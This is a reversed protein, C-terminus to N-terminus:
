ARASCIVASFRFERTVSSPGRLSTGARSLAASVNTSEDSM